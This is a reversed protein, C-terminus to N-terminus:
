IKVIWYDTSGFWAPQSKDGNIGSNSGGILLYGGDSTNIMNYCADTGMGGYRYDWVKQGADNVKTIWYDAYTTGGWNNQTKDGSINSFSYGAVVYGGDASKLIINALDPETGGLRKDWQKVLPAQGYAYASTLILLFFLQLFFKMPACIGLILWIVHWPTIGQFIITNPLKQSM